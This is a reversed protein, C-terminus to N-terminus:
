KCVIKSNKYKILIFMGIIFFIICIIQNLSIIIGIHSNRLFDFIFKFISSLVVAMGAKYYINKSNRLLILYIGIFSLSEMLQVPFLSIGKPASLSYNYTISLPGSYPIGYCCGAIFCGIKSIGYMIPMVVFIRSLLDLFSKKFQISFLGMALIVGIVAGLSSYPISAFDFEGKNPLVYLLYTVFKSVIVIGLSCYIILGVKERDNLSSEKLQRYYLVIGLVISITLILGYIPFTSNFV